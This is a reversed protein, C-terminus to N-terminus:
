KCEKVSQTFVTEIKKDTKPILILTNPYTLVATLFCNDGPSVEEVYVVVKDETDVVRVPKLEYEGAPRM